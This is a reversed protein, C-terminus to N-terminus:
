AIRGLLKRADTSVRVRMNEDKHTVGKPGSAFAATILELEVDVLM